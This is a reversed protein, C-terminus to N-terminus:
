VFVRANYVLIRNSSFADVFLIANVEPEAAKSILHSFVHRKAQFENLM